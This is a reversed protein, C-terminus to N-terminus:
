DPLPPAAEAGVRAALAVGGEGAQPPPDNSSAPTVGEGAQPPPNPHPSPPRCARPGIKPRVRYVRLPRAINKLSHEGLDDFAIDLRDQVQGHVIASVCIGGPEAMAELRAAINVGTATSTM